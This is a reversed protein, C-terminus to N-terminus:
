DLRRRHVRYRNLARARNQARELAVQHARSHHRAHLQQPHHAIQVRHYHVDPVLAETAADRRKEVVDELGTTEGGVDRDRILGGVIGIQEESDEVVIRSIDEDLLQGIEGSLEDM